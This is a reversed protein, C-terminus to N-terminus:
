LSCFNAISTDMLPIKNNQKEFSSCGGLITLLILIFFLNKM